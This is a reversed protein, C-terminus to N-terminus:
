EKEEDEEEDEKEKKVFYEGSTFCKNRDNRCVSALTYTKEGTVLNMSGFLKCRGKNANDCYVEDEIFHVCKVCIPFSTNTIIHRKTILSALTRVTKYM